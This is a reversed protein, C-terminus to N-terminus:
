MGDEKLAAMVSRSHYDTILNNLKTQMDTKLKMCAQLRNAPSFLTFDTSTLAYALMESSHVKPMVWVLACAHALIYASQTDVDESMGFDPDCELGECVGQMQVESVAMALIDMFEEMLEEETFELYKYENIIRLFMQYINDQNM